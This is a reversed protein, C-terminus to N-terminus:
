DYKNQLVKKNNKIATLKISRNIACAIVPLGLYSKSSEGFLCIRGPAISIIEKM